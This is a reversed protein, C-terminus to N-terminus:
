IVAPEDAVRALARLVRRAVDQAIVPTVDAALVGAVVDSSLRALAGPDEDPYANLAVGVGLGLLLGARVAADERVVAGDTAADTYTLFAAHTPDPLVRELAIRASRQAAVHVDLPEGGLATVISEYTSQDTLNKIDLILNM